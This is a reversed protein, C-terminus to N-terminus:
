FRYFGGAKGRKLPLPSISPVAAAAFHIASLPQGQMPFRVSSLGVYFM